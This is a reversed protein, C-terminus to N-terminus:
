EFLSELSNLNASLIPHAPAPAAFANLAPLNDHELQQRLHAYSDSALQLGPNSDPEQAVPLEGILMGAPTQPQNSMSTTLWLVVMAAQSFALGAALAKWTQSRPASARGAAFLMADRDISSAAPSFQALKDILPDHSMNQSM